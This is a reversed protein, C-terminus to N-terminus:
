NYLGVLPSFSLSPPSSLRILSAGGGGSRFIREMLLKVILTFYCVNQSSPLAVIPAPFFPSNVATAGTNKLLFSDAALSLYALYM